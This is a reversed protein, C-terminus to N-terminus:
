MGNSYSHLKLACTYGICGQNLRSTDFYKQQSQGDIVNNVVGENQNKKGM